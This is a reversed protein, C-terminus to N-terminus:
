FNGQVSSFLKSLGVLNSERFSWFKGRLIQFCSFVISSKTFFFFIKSFDRRSVFFVTKVVIDFFSKVFELFKGEFDTLSRLNEWPFHYHQAILDRSCTYLATKWVPGFTKQCFDAIKKILDRFFQLILYKRCFVFKWRFFKNNLYFVTKVCKGFSKRWHQLINKGCDSLLSSVWYFELFFLECLFRRQVCLICNPRVQRFEKGIELFRRGWSGYFSMIKKWSFLYGYWFFNEPFSQFADKSM